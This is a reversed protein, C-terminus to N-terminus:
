TEQEKDTSGLNQTYFSHNSDLHRDLRAINEDLENIHKDLLEIHEDVKRALKTHRSLSYIEIIIATLVIIDLFSVWEM